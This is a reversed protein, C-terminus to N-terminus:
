NCSNTNTSHPTLHHPFLLNRMLSLMGTDTRPILSTLSKLYQKARIHHRRTNTNPLTGKQHSAKLGPLDKATGQTKRQCHCFKNLRQLNM